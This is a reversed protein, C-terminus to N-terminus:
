GEDDTTQMDKIKELIHRVKEQSLKIVSSYGARLDTLVQSAAVIREDNAMEEKLDTVKQLEKVILANLEDENLQNINSVFSESLISKAKGMNIAM